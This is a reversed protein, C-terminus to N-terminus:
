LGNAILQATQLDPVQSIDVGAGSLKAAVEAGGPLYGWPPLVLSAAAAPVAAPAAPPTQAAYSVGPTATAAPPNATPQAFKGRWDGAAAEFQDALLDDRGAVFDNLVYAGDKAGQAPLKALRGLVPSGTGATKTLQPVLAKGGIRAGLLVTPKGTEPNILDVIAVDASVIKSPVDPTGDPKNFVVENVETPYILFLRGIWSPNDRPSFKEAKDPQGYNGM